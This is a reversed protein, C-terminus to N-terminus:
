IDRDSDEVLKEFKYMSKNYQLPIRKVHLGRRSYPFTSHQIYLDNLCPAERRADILSSSGKLEVLIKYLETESLLREKKCFGLVRRELIRAGKAIGFDIDKKESFRPSARWINLLIRKAEIVMM